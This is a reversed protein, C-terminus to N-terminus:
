WAQHFELFILPHLCLGSRPHYCSILKSSPIFFVYTSKRERFILYYLNNKELYFKSYNKCFVKGSFHEEAYLRSKRGAEIILGKDNVLNNLVSVGAEIIKNEDPNNELLFGNEGNTIYDPIGGVATSVVVKGYAMMEMVAIPLGEYASTLLLVDSNKYIEDMQKKDKINGYFTCYPYDVINIIKEVNGVFSFHINAKM